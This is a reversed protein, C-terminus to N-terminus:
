LSKTVHTDEQTKIDPSDGIEVELQHENSVQSNKIIEETKDNRIKKEQLDAYKNFVEILRLEISGYMQYLASVDLNFALSSLIKLFESVRNVEDYTDTEVGSFNELFNDLKSQLENIKDYISFRVFSDNVQDIQQALLEEPSVEQQQEGGGGALELIQQIDDKTLSGSQYMKVLDEEKLEGQAFSQAIQEINQNEAEEPTPDDDSDVAKLAAEEILDSVIPDTLFSEWIM